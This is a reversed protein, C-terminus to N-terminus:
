VEAFAQQPLLDSRFVLVRDYWTEKRISWAACDIDQNLAEVEVTFVKAGQEDLQFPIWESEPAALAEEGTGMYLYGYGQGSMTMDAHMTGNEVRLVCKVIQFMSSSSDVQIEYAGDNLQSALVPELAQQAAGDAKVDSAMADAAHDVLIQRIADYEGLGKLQCSVEYGEATLVSKWSDAEDGAMDNNAHDGAVIMLPSLVVKKAGSAKVAALVDDLDPTAEVTGIIYNEHGAANLKEQLKAYTANAAHETGHGMFVLVTDDAELHGNEAVLAEVVADYDADDTLVPKSIKLSDFKSTYASVEKVMDDYELGTMIHTPQVVVEKVGDAVLREMAETVNDITLNEREKLIDIIIQSTFARRVEYDPYAKQLQAEVADITKARTDNYSTGFSVVLLVPKAQAPQTQEMQEPQTPVTQVPETEAPQTETNKSGCGTVSLLVCACLVLSLIKTLKM